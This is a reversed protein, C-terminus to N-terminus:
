RAKKLDANECDVWGSPLSLYRQGQRQAQLIESLSIFANGFGYTVSLWCWDRDIAGPTVEIRDPTRLIKLREVPPALVLDARRVDKGISDM